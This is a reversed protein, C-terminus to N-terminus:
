PLKATYAALAEIDHDSLGVAIESMVPHHREDQRFERLVKATYDPRQGALRARGTEGRGDAGHCEVCLRRYLPGGRNVLEVAAEADPGLPLSSYFAALRIMDPELLWGALGNMVYEEREGSAFREFQEVLYVPNQGALHPVGPRDSIGDAGHCHRCLSTRLEGERIYRRFRSTNRTLADFKHELVQRRQVLQQAKADGPLAAEGVSTSALLCM